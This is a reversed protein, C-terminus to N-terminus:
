DDRFEVVPYGLRYTYFYVYFKIKPTINRRVGYLLTVNEMLAAGCGLFAVVMIVLSGILIIYIGIFYKQLELVRM